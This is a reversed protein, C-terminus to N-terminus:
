DHLCYLFICCTDQFFRVLLIAVGLNFVQPQPDGLPEYSLKLNTSFCVTILSPGGMAVIECAGACSVITLVFAIWMLFNFGGFVYQLVQKWYQTPPPILVNKPSTELKRTLLAGELGLTPHSGFKTFVDPARLLHVNIDGIEAGPEKNGKRGNAGAAGPGDKPHDSLQLSLTRFSRL